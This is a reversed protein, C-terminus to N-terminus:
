KKIVSMSRHLQLIAQRLQKVALHLQRQAEQLLARSEALKGELMRQHSLDIKETATKLAKSFEDLAAQAQTTDVGQEQLHDLQKQVQKKLEELRQVFHRLRGYLILVVQREHARHLKKMTEGIVSHIKQLDEFSEAARVEEKLGELQQILQNLNDIAEQKRSDELRPTARLHEEIKKLRTILRDLQLLFHEKIKESNKTQRKFVKEKIEQLNSNLAPSIRRLHLSSQRSEDTEPVDSEGTQVPTVPTVKGVKQNLFIRVSSAYSSAAWSLSTGAVILLTVATFLLDKRSPQPKM